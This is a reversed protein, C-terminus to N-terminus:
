LAIVEISLLVDAGAGQISVSGGEIPLVVSADLLPDSKDSFLSEELGYRRYRDVEVLSLELTLASESENVLGEFITLVDAREEGADMTWMEPTRDELKREDVVDDQLLVRQELVLESTGDGPALGAEEDGHLTVSALQVRVVRRAFLAAHVLRATGPAAVIENHSLDMFGHTPAHRAGGATVVQNALDQRAFLSELSFVVGDHPLGDPNHIAGLSFVNFAEDLTPDSGGLTHVLVGRWMPNDAAQLEHDWQVVRARVHDPDLAAIDWINFAGSGAYQQVYPNDIMHAMRAGQLAGSVGVVRALLGSSSLQLLDHEVLARVVACGMSHCLLNVTRAGTMTVRDRVFVAVVRAYRFLADPTDNEVQEIWEVDEPALSPDPTAGYYEVGVLQRLASPSALGDVLAADQALLSAGLDRADTASGYTNAMLVPTASLQIGHVFITVVDPDFLDRAAIAPAEACDAPCFSDRGVEADCGVCAGDGCEDFRTDDALAGVCSGFWCQGGPCTEPADPDCTYDPEPTDCSEQFVGADADPVEGADAAESPGADERAGADDRTGADAPTDLGADAENESAGTDGHPAADACACASLLLLLAARAHPLSMSSNRAQQADDDVAGNSNRPRFSVFQATEELFGAALRLAHAV